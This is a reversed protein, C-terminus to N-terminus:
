VTAADIDDYASHAGAFRIEALQAAYNMTVVFRYSNGSM